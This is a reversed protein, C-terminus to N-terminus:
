EVRPGSAPAIASVKGNTTEVRTYPCFPLARKGCAYIATQQKLNADPLTRTDSQETRPGYAAAVACAPMGVELAGAEIRQWQAGTFVRRKALERAAEERRPGGAGYTACLDGNSATSFDATRPDFPAPQPTTACAALLASLTLAAFTKTMTM